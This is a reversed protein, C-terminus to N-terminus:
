IIKRCKKIQYYLHLGTSLGTSGVYGIVQGQKVQAGRKIGKAYGSLHAYETTYIDNHHISIFNGWGNKWGAWMVTGDGVSMVPTGIPAAYDIALHDMYSQTVPHFRGYTYGSSICSYSLPAKLFQKQMAEGTESFYAPDGEIDEFLYAKFSKGSNIFEGALVRGIGVYNSDRYRKEYLVKFSDGKQTQVSFDVTWAFVDAFEIILEEPMGVELGAFWLSSSVVGSVVETKVEYQIQVIGVLYKNEKFEVTIIEESDKEYELRVREGM